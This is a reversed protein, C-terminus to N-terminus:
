SQASRLVSGTTLGMITLVISSMCMYYLRLPKGYYYEILSFPTNFEESNLRQGFDGQGERALCTVNVEVDAITIDELVKVNRVVGAEVM